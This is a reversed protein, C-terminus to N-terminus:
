LPLFTEGPTLRFALRVRVARYKRETKSVALNGRLLSVPIDLEAHHPLINAAITESQLKRRRARGGTEAQLKLVVAASQLRGPDLAPRSIEASQQRSGHVM